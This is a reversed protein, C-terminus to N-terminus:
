QQKLFTKNKTIIKSHLFMVWATTKGLSKRIPFYRGKRFYKFVMIKTVLIICHQGACNWKLVATANKVAAADPASLWWTKEGARGSLTVKALPTKLSGAASAPQSTVTRTRSTLWNRRHLLRMM